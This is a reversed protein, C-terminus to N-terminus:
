LEFAERVFNPRPQGNGRRDCRFYEAVYRVTERKKEPVRFRDGKQLVPRAEDMRGFQRTGAVQCPYWYGKKEPTELYFEPYSHDPIWVVRAPIGLNRCIAVFLSTMEECDGSGDLLAKSAKKIDGEVYQVKDRVYDYVQEVRQWANDVPEKELEAAVNRIVRSTTDIEPSVGMYLRLERAITKPVILRSTDEPPQIRDREIDFEFLASVKAGANIRPMQLVIQQTGGGLDRVQWRTVEPDIEQSRITIKQEPWNSPVPFTALGNTCAVPTTLILGIRWHSLPQELYRPSESSGDGNDGQVPKEGANSTAVPLLASAACLGGAASIWHRRNLMHNDQRM